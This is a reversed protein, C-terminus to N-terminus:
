VNGRKARRSPHRGGAPFIKRRGSEHRPQATSRNVLREAIQQDRIGAPQGHEVDILKLKWAAGLANSALDFAPQFRFQLRAIIGARQGSQAAEFLAFHQADGRAVEGAEAVHNFDGAFNRVQGVRAQVGHPPNAPRLEDPPKALRKM